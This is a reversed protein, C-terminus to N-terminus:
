TSHLQSSEAPHPQIIQETNNPAFACVRVRQDRHVADTKKSSMGIGCVLWLVLVVCCARLECRLSSTRPSFVGDVERILIIIVPDTNAHQLGCQTHTCDRLRALRRQRSLAVQNCARSNPRSTVAVAAEVAFLCATINHTHASEISSLGCSRM